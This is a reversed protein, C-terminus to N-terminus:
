RIVQGTPAGPTGAGVVGLEREAIDEAWTEWANAVEPSFQEGFTATEDVVLGHIVVEGPLPVGLWRGMDVVERFTLTHFSRYGFGAPLTEPTARVPTGAPLDPSILSDVIVVKEYGSMMWLLDITAVCAEALDAEGGVLEHVRRSALLGVGDDSLIENGLGLVLTRM